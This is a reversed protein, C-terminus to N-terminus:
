IGKITISIREVDNKLDNYNKKEQDVIDKPARDIFSKNELRQSIKNM